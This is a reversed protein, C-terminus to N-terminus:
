PSFGACAAFATDCNNARCTTCGPSDGGACQLACHMITCHVQADFCMACASSLGLGQICTMLGPEAGFGSMACNGLDNSFTAGMTVTQDASDTCAGGSTAADTGPATWADAVPVIWADEGFPSTWADEAPATWADDGGGGGADPTSRSSGGCGALMVIMVSLWRLVSM